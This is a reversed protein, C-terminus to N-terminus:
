LTLIHGVASDSFQRVVHERILAYRCTAGEREAVRESALGRSSHIPALLLYYSISL